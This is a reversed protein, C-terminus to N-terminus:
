SHGQEILLDQKKWAELDPAPAGACFDAFASEPPSDFRRRVGDWELEVAAAHLAHCPLLLRHRDADTLKSQVLALYLREDGGYLKDGVIPWGAHALHIRIQHKRGTAPEAEVLAFLGEDRCFRNVVRVATEAPAGDPRVCDKVVVASATDKGLPASLVHSDETPHGHVIAVYTKRVRRSEWQRGLEGAAAADKAVVTIGSTERDLRNIMHATRGDGLYARVRAALSSLPGRKTPHCVLGAPKHLVLLRDDEFVVQVLPSKNM